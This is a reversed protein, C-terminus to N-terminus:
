VERSKNKLEHKIYEILERIRNEEDNDQEGFCAMDERENDYRYHKCDQCM